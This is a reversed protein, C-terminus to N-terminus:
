KTDVLFSEFILSKVLFSQMAALSFIDLQLSNSNANCKELDLAEAIV